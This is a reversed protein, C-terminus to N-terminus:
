YQNYFIRLNYLMYFIYETLQNLPANTLADSNTASHFRFHADYKAVRLTNQQRKEYRKIKIHKEYDTELDAISTANVLANQCSNKFCKWM